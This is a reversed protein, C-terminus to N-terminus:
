CLIKIIDAHRLQSCKQNWLCSVGKQNPQSVLVPSVVSSFLLSLWLLAFVYLSNFLSTTIVTRVTGCCPRATEPSPSRGQPPPTSLQTRADQSQHTGRWRGHWVLSIQFPRRVITLVATLDSSISVSKRLRTAAHSCDSHLCHLFKTRCRPKDQENMVFARFTSSPRAPTINRLM